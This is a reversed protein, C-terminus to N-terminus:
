TSTAKRARQGGEHRYLGLRYLRLRRRHRARGARRPGHRHRRLARDPRRVMRPNRRRARFALAHRCPRRRRGRRPDLRGRRERDGQPRIRQHDRRAADRRWLFAGRRELGDRAGLSTIVVPAKYKACLALDQELRDNSKHVIQNVAFPASPRKPIPATMPRWNKPSARWGNTWSSIPRANLSPFSGVVGAKCQAIVLDPGSIIFLPSGIVPISLPKSLAGPLKRAREAVITM